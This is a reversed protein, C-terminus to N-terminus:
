GIIATKEPNSEFKKFVKDKFEKTRESKSFFTGPIEKGFLYNWKWQIVPDAIFVAEVKRNKLEKYLTSIADVENVNVQYWDRKMEKGSIIGIVFILVLSLSIYNRLRTSKGNVLAYIFLFLVGTFFGIWYRPSY